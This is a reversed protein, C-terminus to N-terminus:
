DSFAPPFVLRGRLDRILASGIGTRQPEPAVSVPGLELLQREHGALGVYSLTVHGVIRGELEAVLSLEPV